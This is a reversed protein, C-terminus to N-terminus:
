SNLTEFDQTELKSDQTELGTERRGVESKRSGDGQVLGCVYSLQIVLIKDDNILVKAKFM